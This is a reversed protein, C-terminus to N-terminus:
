YLPSDALLNRDWKAQSPLTFFCFRHSWQLSEAEESLESGAWAARSAHLSSM